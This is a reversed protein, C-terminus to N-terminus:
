IFKKEAAEEEEDIVVVDNDNKISRIIRSKLKLQCSHSDVACLLFSFRNHTNHARSCIDSSYRQCNNGDIASLSINSKSIVWDRKGEKAPGKREKGEDSTRKRGVKADYWLSPVLLFVM